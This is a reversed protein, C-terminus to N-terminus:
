KGLHRGRSRRSGPRSVSSYICRPLILRLLRTCDRALAAFPRLNTQAECSSHSARQQISSSGNLTFRALFIDSIRGRAESECYGHRSRFAFPLISHQVTSYPRKGDQSALAISSANDRATEICLGAELAYIERPTDHGAVDDIRRTSCSPAKTWVGQDTYPIYPILQM